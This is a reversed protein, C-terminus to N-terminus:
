RLLRKYYIETFKGNVNKLAFLWKYGKWEYERVNYGMSELEIVLINHKLYHKTLNIETNFCTKM